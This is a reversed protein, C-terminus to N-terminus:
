KVILKQTRNIDSNQIRIYYVGKALNNLDITQEITGSVPKANITNLIRGQVDSLVIKTEGNIGSVVLNTQSTAPNPYMMISIDQGIVGNLSGPTFTLPLGYTTESLTRGYARVDYSMGNTLTNATATITTVGSASINIADDWAESSLKYEFGRAEIAETNEIIKGYFNASTETVVRVSDTTVTPPIIALTTFNITNGYTKGFATTTVYAKAEYDTNSTLGTATYTFPTTADVLLQDTWTTEAVTKYEFGTALIPDSVEVYTGNLVATTQSILTSPVATTVTPPTPVDTTTFQKPIWSSYGTGCNARVYVTYATSPTLGTLPHNTISTVEPTGTTGLRVEWSSEGGGATWTVTASTNSSTVTINTPAPCPDGLGDVMLDDVYVNRGYSSIGKLMVYNNGTMGAPLNFTYQYWGGSTEIPALSFSRNVTGLLTAGTESATSNVYLEVRDATTLYDANDRFLWFSIQYQDNPFDLLPSYLTSWGGSSISNSNFMIMNSGSHPTATPWTGSPISTWNASTVSSSITWCMLGAEFGEEWPFTTIASDYCPTAYTIIATARSYSGDLCVTKVYINYATQLTLGPITTTTTTTYVSDWVSSSAEKYFIYWETDTPQAPTFSVDMDTGIGSASPAASLASPRDCAPIYDVVLEDLYGYNDTTTYPVLFAIYEGSGTYSSFNVEYEAWSSTGQITTVSDFTSADTPDTMVGVILINTASSYKYYFAAMLTNIPISADIPTMAAINYTGATGAYFYLYNGSYGGSNVYPRDAYTTTRTWCAPMVSTGTGYTDFDEFYPLVSIADCSTRFELINMPNSLETGCNNVVTVQYSSAPLLGTLTYPNTTVNVSDTWDSEGNLRWYIWWDAVSSLNSEWSIEASTLGIESAVLDTTSPCTIGVIELNDVMAGPQIGPYDDNTWSFVIQQITNSYESGLSITQNIWSGGSLLLPSPTVKYSNSPLTGPVLNVGIPIIYADMYHYFYGDEGDGGAKWDFSLVFEPSNDFEVLTSAMTTSSSSTGYHATTGNDSIFLGNGTTGNAGASGIYWKNTQTGNYMTWTNNITPDEFDCIFPLVNASEPLIVKIYDTWNGLCGRQMAVWVSDGPNFGQLVYPLPTGTAIPIIASTTPDFPTTLNSAYAINYGDGMDAEDTWNVSISSTSAAGVTLGYVNPCDPSLELSIDDITLYYPDYTAVCKIAIYYTATEDPITFTSSYIQYTENTPNLVPTGLVSVLTNSTADWLEAKLSTWGDLGDTVYWFSFDYSTNETLQFEPTKFSDNCDWKFWAAKTGTRANRNYDNGTTIITGCNTGLSTSSWCPPLTNAALISEFGETWPFQSLPVCPTTFTAVNSWESEEAGCLSQVRFKYNSAPSLLGIIPYPNSAVGAIETANAWDTESALMYQITWMSGADDTWGLDADTATINTATLATPKPCSPIYDVVVDDLWYYYNYAVTVHKFAIYNNPGTLTTGSFLYEYETWATTSPAITAVLEFTTLDLPDSMVGVQMTGSSTTNEAKLWFTVRLSNINDAFQPTIVYTPATASASKFKISAPASNNTTEISPFPTTTNLVPRSWCPPFSGTVTGYTDFSDSYPLVTIADCATMFTIPSTWDSQEIGCDTQVRAKYSTSANLSTFTHPNMVSYLTTANTWDTETALMYEINWISGTDDTWGLDIGITTPNSASLATPKPCAPVFLEPGTVDDIFTNFGFNDTVRIAVYIDQGIFTSLDVTHQAWSTTINDETLALLATTGFSSTSNDTTSVFVDINDGDSYWDDCAIWFSFNTETATVTLKPTILWRTCGGSYYGSKASKTGGHAISTSSVWTGGGSTTEIRWDDPPFTTGEFGENLTAQSFGQMAFLTAMLFFLLRKM